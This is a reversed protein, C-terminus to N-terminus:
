CYIKNQESSVVGCVTCNSVDGKGIIAALLNLDGLNLHRTEHGATLLVVVVVELTGTDRAGEV